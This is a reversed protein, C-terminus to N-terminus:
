ERVTPLPDYGGPHFPHCKLIRKISLFFAYFLNYHLFAELAYNSCSPFFRCSIPFLPSLFIQYIKIVAIPIQNIIKMIWTYNKIIISYLDNYKLHTPLSLVTIVVATPTNFFPRANRYVERIIRKIRNRECAGKVNKRIYISLKYTEYPTITILMNDYDIAKNSSILSQRTKWDLNRECKPLNLRCSKGARPEDEPCCKGAVM